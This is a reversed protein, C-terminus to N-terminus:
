PRRLRRIIRRPLGTPHYRLLPPLCRLAERWRGARAHVALRDLLREGYDAQVERIGMELAMSEDHSARALRRHRRRVSVASRLMYAPDGSQSNPHERYDLVLRGHCHMPWRRAIRINLDFDASGGARPDFGALEEIVGRRYLVVGPTWIYNRSLLERYHADAVAGQPPCRCGAPDAGLLRVHGYVLGCDAHDSLADVGTALADPLLRDDADLFLVYPGRSERLGRNRAAATGQNQQPLYRVGAFRGAVGAVDDTSGDDVLLVERDPYSQRAVSELADALFRAQNFCPIIVSVLPRDGASRPAIRVSM